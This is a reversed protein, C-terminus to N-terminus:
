MIKVGSVMPVGVLLGVLPGVFPGVMVSLLELVELPSTAIMAETTTTPTTAIMTVTMSTATIHFHLFPLLSVLFIYAFGFAFIKEHMRRLSDHAYSQYSYFNELCVNWIAFLYPLKM